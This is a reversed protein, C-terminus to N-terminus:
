EGTGPPPSTDVREAKLYPEADWRALAVADLSRGLDSEVAQRDLGRHLKGVVRVEDGKRVDTRQANIVLLEDVSEGGLTFADSSVVRHVEGTLAVEQDAFDNLDRVFDNSYDGDYSLREEGLTAEQEGFDVPSEDEGMGACGALGGLSLVALSLAAAGAVLARILRSRHPKPTM